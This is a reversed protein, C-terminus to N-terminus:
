CCGSTAAHRANLISGIPGGQVDTESQAKDYYSKFFDDDIAVVIDEFLEVIGTGEKSSTTHFKVINGHSEILENVKTEIDEQSIKPTTQSQVLDYKTGILHIEIPKDDANSSNNLELQQIWYKATHFTSEFNSLDICILAVKANRYYMPTLSRYREQGATDWIEFKVKRNADSHSTYLKTIFAAGITNAIHVDFTNSTFRHVLSTKGVSSEGLLVIKYPPPQISDEIVSM